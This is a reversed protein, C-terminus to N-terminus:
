KTIFPHLKIIYNTTTLYSGFYFIIITIIAMIYCFLTFLSISSCLLQENQFSNYIIHYTVKIGHNLLM